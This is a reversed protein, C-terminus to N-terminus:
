SIALRLRLPPGKGALSLVHLEAISLAVSYLFLLLQCKSPEDCSM